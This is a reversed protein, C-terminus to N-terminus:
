GQIRYKIALTTYVQGLTEKKRPDREAEIQKNIDALIDKATEAVAEGASGDTVTRKDV